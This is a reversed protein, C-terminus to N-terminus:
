RLLCLRLLYSQYPDPITVGRISDLKGQQQTAAAAKAEAAAGVRTINAWQLLFTTDRGM